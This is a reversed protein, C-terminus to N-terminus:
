KPSTQIWQKNQDDLRISKGRRRIHCLKAQDLWFRKSAQSPVLPKTIPWPGSTSLMRMIQCPGLVLLVLQGTERSAWNWSLLFIYLIKHRSWHCPLPKVLDSVNANKQFKPVVRASWLEEKYLTHLNEPFSIDNFIHIIHGYLFFPPIHTYKTVHKIESPYCWSVIESWQTIKECDEEIFLPNKYAVPIFVYFSSM